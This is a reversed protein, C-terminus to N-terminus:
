RPIGWPFRRNLDIVLAPGRFNPQGPPDLNLRANIHPVEVQGAVGVGARVQAPPSRVPVTMVAKSSSAPRPPNASTFTGVWHVKRGVPHHTVLVVFAVFAGVSIRAKIQGKIRSRTQSQRDGGVGIEGSRFHVITLHVQDSETTRERADRNRRRSQDRHSQPILRSGKGKVAPPNSQIGTAITLIHVEADFGASKTLVTQPEQVGLHIPRTLNIPLVKADKM